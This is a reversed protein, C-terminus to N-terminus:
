LEPPSIIARPNAGASLDVVFLKKVPRTEGSPEGGSLGWLGVQLQARQGWWLPGQVAGSPWDRAMELESGPLVFEQDNGSRHDGHRALERGHKDYLIVSFALPGNEPSLVTHAESDTAKMKASVSLAYGGNKLKIATAQPVIRVGAVDVELGQPTVRYTIKRPEREPAALGTESSQVTKHPAAKPANGSSDAPSGTPLSEELGEREAIV